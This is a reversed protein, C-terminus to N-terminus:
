VVESLQPFWFLDRSFGSAGPVGQGKEGLEGPFSACPIGM